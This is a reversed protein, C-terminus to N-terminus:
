NTGLPLSHVIDSPFALVTVSCRFPFASKNENKLATFCHLCSTSKLVASPSTSFKFDVNDCYRNAAIESLVDKNSFLVIQQALSSASFNPAEPM